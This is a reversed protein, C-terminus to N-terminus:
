PERSEFACREIPAGRGLLELEIVVGSKGRATAIEKITASCGQGEDLLARKAFSERPVYGIPRGRASKVVLARKDYPNNHEHWIGLLEGEECRAIEAQFFSEGVLAIPFTM